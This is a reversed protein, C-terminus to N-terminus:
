ARRSPSSGPASPTASGPGLSWPLLLGTLTLGSRPRPPFRPSLQPARPVGWTPVLWPSPFAKPLLLPPIRSSVWGQSPPLSAHGSTPVSGQGGPSRLGELREAQAERKGRPPFTVRGRSHGDQVPPQKDPGLNCGRRRQAKRLFLPARRGPAKGAVFSNSPADEWGRPRIRGATSRVLAPSRYRLARGLLGSRAARTARPRTLTAAPAIRGGCGRSHRHGPATWRPSPRSISGSPAAAPPAPLGAQRARGSARAATASPPM